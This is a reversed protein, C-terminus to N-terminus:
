KEKGHALNEHRRPHEGSKRSSLIVELRRMISPVQWGAWDTETIERKLKTQLIIHIHIDTHSSHTLETGEFALSPMLERAAATWGVHTNPVSSTRQMNKVASGDKRGGLRLIRTVM